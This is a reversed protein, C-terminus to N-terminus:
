QELLNCHTDILNTHLLKTNQSWAHEFVVPFRRGRAKEKSPVIGFQNDPHLEFAKWINDVKYALEQPAALKQLLRWNESNLVARVKSGLLESFEGIAEEHNDSPMFICLHSPTFELRLRSAFDALEDDAEFLAKIDSFCTPANSSFSIESLPKPDGFLDQFHALIRGSVSGPRKSRFSRTDDSPQSPVKGPKGDLRSLGGLSYLNTESSTDWSEAGSGDDNEGVLGNAQLGEGELAERSLRKPSLPALLASM